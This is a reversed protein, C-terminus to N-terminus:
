GPLGVGRPWWFRADRRLAGRAVIRFVSRRIQSSACHEDVKTVPEPSESGVRHGPGM